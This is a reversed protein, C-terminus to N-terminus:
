ESDVAARERALEDPSMTWFPKGDKTLRVKLVFYEGKKIKSAMFVDKGDIDAWVGRIKVLDGRNLGINGPEMYWTPCVHVVIVEDDGREQVHLAVGPAMGEMPVVETIKVVRAKFYDMDVVKYKANYPSQLGWGGMETGDPEAGFANTSLILIGAFLMGLSCKISRKMFAEM